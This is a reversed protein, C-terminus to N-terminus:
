PLDSPANVNRFLPEEAASTTRFSLLGQAHALRVFRQVSRDANALSQEALPLCARPYVAALPEIGAGTEPLVGCGTRAAQGLLSALFEPTMAPLDIALVLLRECQMRRLATVLGGLPGCGPMEDAVIPVGAGAYPGDSRGSIFLEAPDLARLTALQRQWLPQGDILVGAKDCGMRTSKGGALLVATFPLPSSSDVFPVFYVFPPRAFLTAAQCGRLSAREDLAAAGAKFEASREANKAM